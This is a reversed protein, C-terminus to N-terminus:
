DARNTPSAGSMHVAGLPADQVSCLVVFYENDQAPVRMKPNTCQKRCYWILM